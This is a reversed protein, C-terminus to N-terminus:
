TLERPITFAAIQGLGYRVEGWRNISFKMVTTTCTPYDFFRPHDPPAVVLREAFEAIGPNHGVMLVVNGSCTQLIDLMAAPAAHYLRHELRPPTAFGLGDCTEITRQASSSIVEDPFYGNERLWAGIAPAARRGRDNLPRDHDPRGTEWSSKAHRTLILLKTM